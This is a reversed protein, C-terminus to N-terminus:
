QGVPFHALTALQDSRELCASCRSQHAKRKLEHNLFILQDQTGLIAWCLVPVQYLNQIFDCVCVGVSLRKRDKKKEKKEQVPFIMGM